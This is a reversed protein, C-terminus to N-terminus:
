FNIDLTYLPYIQFNSTVAALWMGASPPEQKPQERGPRVQYVLNRHSLVLPTVM